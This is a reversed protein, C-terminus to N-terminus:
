APVNILEQFKQECEFYWCEDGARTGIDIGLRTNNLVAAQGKLCSNKYHHVFINKVARSFFVRVGPTKEMLFQIM